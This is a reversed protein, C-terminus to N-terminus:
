YTRSCGAVGPCQYLADSDGQFDLWVGHNLPFFVGVYFVLFYFLENEIISASVVLDLINTGSTEVRRVSWAMHVRLSVLLWSLTGKREFLSSGQPRRPAAVTRTSGIHASALSDFAFPRCCALGRTCVIRGTTRPNRTAPASIERSRVNVM